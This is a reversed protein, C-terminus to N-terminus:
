FGGGGGSSNNNQNKKKSEFAVYNLLIVASVLSARKVPSADAPMALTFTDANTFEAECCGPFVRAVEGIPRARDADGGDYVQLRLRACEGCPCFCFAAPQCMTGHVKYWLAGGEGTVGAAVAGEGGDDAKAAHIDFEYSCITCPNTVTAFRGITNHKMYVVPRNFCCFTCRFPRRVVLADQLTPKPPPSRTSHLHTRRRAAGTGAVGMAPWRVPHAFMTDRSELGPHFTGIAPSAPVIGVEFERMNGCFVRQCCSSVEKMRLLEMGKGERVRTAGLAPDWANVDFTKETTWGTLVELLSVREKVFLGKNKLMVDFIDAYTPVAPMAGMMNPMVMAVGGGAVAMPMAVGPAMVMGGPAMVM